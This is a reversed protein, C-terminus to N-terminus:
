KDKEQDNVDNIKEVNEEKKEPKGVIVEGRQIIQNNWYITPLLTEKIMDRNIGSMPEYAVPNVQMGHDYVDNTHDKITVQLSVLTQEIGEFYREIKDFGEIIVGDANYMKKKIRWIHTALKAFAKVYEVPVSGKINSSAGSVCEQINGVLEKALKNEDPFPMQPIKLLEKPINM